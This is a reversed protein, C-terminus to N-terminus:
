IGAFFLSFPLPLSLFLPLPLPLSFSLHSPSHPLYVNITLTCMNHTIYHYLIMLSIAHVIDNYTHQINHTYSHTNFKGSILYMCTCSMTHYSNSSPDKTPWVAQCERLYKSRTRQVSSTINDIWLVFNLM